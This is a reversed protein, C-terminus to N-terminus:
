LMERKDNNSCEICHKRSFHKPATTREYWYKGNELVDTRTYLDDVNWWPDPQEKIFEGTCKGTDNMSYLAMDGYHYLNTIKGENLTYEFTLRCNESDESDYLYYFEGKLYGFAWGARRETFSGKLVTQEALASAALLSVVIFVSFCARSDRM